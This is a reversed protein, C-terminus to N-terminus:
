GWGVNGASGQLSSHPEPWFLSFWCRRKSRPQSYLFLPNLSSLWCRKTGCVSSRTWLAALPGCKKRGICSERSQRLPDLVAGGQPLPCSHTPNFTKEKVSFRNRSTSTTLFMSEFGDALKVSTMCLFDRQLKLHKRKARKLICFKIYM